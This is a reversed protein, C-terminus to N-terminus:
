FDLRLKFTYDRNEKKKVPNALKAIAILNKDKDYIGIKSIYTINEFKEMHQSFDSKKINKILGPAETYTYKDLKSSVKNDFDIFTPNHSYNNEMQESHAFMTLTPIKNTGSFKVSYSSSVALGNGVPDGIEPLGTGFSLWSPSDTGGGSFYSDQYTDHLNWSGTMLFLGQEYLVIGAVSGSSPGHTQILEGNKKTDSLRATLTGSVYYSLQISGKSISSGYFISPVCLMNVKKEEFQRYDFHKSPTLGGDILSSLARIYKKNYAPKSTLESDEWVPIATGSNLFIRNISASLPYDQTLIDGFQFQSTDQFTSTTVTRFATRAGDKTIFPYVMSDAPRNVNINYLSIHGQPVHDITNSFDGNQSVQNNIIVEGNHVFFEYEPKSVITNYIIDDNRFKKYM